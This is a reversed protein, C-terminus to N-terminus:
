PARTPARHGLDLGSGCGSCRRGCATGRACSAQPPHHGWLTGIALGGVAAILVLWIALFFTM